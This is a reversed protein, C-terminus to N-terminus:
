GESLYRRATVYEDGFAALPIIHVSSASNPSEIIRGGGVYM